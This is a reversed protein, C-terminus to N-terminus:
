PNLEDPSFTSSRGASKESSPTSLINKILSSDLNSNM